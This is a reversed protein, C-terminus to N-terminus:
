NEKTTALRKTGAEPHNLKEPINTEGDYGGPGADPEESVDVKRWRPGGTNPDVAQAEELYEALYEPGVYDKVQHVYIQPGDDTEVVVYNTLTVCRKDIRTDPASKKTM